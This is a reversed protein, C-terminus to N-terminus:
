VLDALLDDAVSGLGWASAIDDALHDDLVRELSSDVVSRDAPRSVDAFYDAGAEQEPL